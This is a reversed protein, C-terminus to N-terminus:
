LLLDSLGISAISLFLTSPLLYRRAHGQCLAHVLLWYFMDVGALALSFLFLSVICLAESGFMSVLLFFALGAASLSYGLIYFIDHPRALYFALVILAAFYVAYILATIGPSRGEFVPGTQFYIFALFVPCLLAYGTKFSQKGTHVPIDETRIQRATNKGLLVLIVASAFPFLSFLIRVGASIFGYPVSSDISGSAFPVVFDFVYLFSQAVILAVSIFVSPSSQFLFVEFYSALVVAAACASLVSMIQRILPSGALLGAAEGLFVALGCILNITNDQVLRPRSNSFVLVALFAAVTLIRFFIYSFDAVFVASASTRLPFAVIYAICLGLAMGYVVSKGRHSTTIRKTKCLADKM